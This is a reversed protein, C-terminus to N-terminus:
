LGLEDGQEITQGLTREEGAFATESQRKGARLGLQRDHQDVILDSQRCRALRRGM